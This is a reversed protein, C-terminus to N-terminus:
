FNRALITRESLKLMVSAFIIFISISMINIVRSTWPTEFKIQTGLIQPTVTPSALKTLPEGFLQVVITTERGQFEGTVVAMGTEQFDPDLINDRHKPSNMWAAVIPEPSTFDLALNEGASQYQYNTEKIWSYFPKGDPNTHNFYDHDLINNAKNQAATTLAANLSLPALDRAAREINTQEILTAATYPLNKAWAANTLLFFLAGTILAKYTM